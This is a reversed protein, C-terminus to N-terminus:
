GHNRGQGRAGREALEELADTAAPVAIDDLLTPDGPCNEQADLVVDPQRSRFGLDEPDNSLFGLLAPGVPEGPRM